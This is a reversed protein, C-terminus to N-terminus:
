PEGRAEERVARAVHRDIRFVLSPLVSDIVYFPGRMNGNVLAENGLHDLTYVAPLPRDEPWEIFTRVGDDGIRTPRLARAGSLRYHGRIEGMQTTGAAETEATEPYRFRVVFPMSSWDGVLPSLEFLYIRADTAVTLNTTVGGQIPKVFLLDRRQNATVQWAAGDGVAVNEILEDQGLQLTVQYGQSAQILVVQDAVYDVFQIRPDSGVAQPMVQAAAPAAALLALLLVLRRM